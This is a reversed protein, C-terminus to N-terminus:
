SLLDQFFQAVDNFCSHSLNIPNEQMDYIWRLPVNPNKECTMSTLSALKMKDTHMLNVNEIAWCEIYKEWCNIRKRGVKSIDISRLLLSELAGPQDKGPLTIVSCPLSRSRNTMWPQEPPDFRRSDDRTLKKFLSAYTKDPNDDNDVVIVLNGYDGFGRETSLANIFRPIADKGSGLKRWKDEDVRDGPWRVAASSLDRNDILEDIFAKDSAGECVILTSEKSAM